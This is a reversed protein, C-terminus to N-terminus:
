GGAGAASDAAVPLALLAPLPRRLLLLLGKLLEGEGEGLVVVVVAEVVLPMEEKRWRAVVGSTSGSTAGKRPVVALGMGMTLGEASGSPKLRPGTRELVTAGGTEVECGLGSSDSKWDTCCFLLLLLLTNLVRKSSGLDWNLTTSLLLLVLALAVAMGMVLPRTGLLCLFLELVLFLNVVVVVVM